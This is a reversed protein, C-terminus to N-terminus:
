RVIYFYRLSVRGIDGYLYGIIKVVYILFIIMKGVINIIDYIFYDYVGRM